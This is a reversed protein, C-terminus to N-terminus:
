WKKRFIDHFRSVGYGYARTFRHGLKEKGPIPKVHIFKMGLMRCGGDTIYNDGVMAVNAPYIVPRHAHKNQLHMDVAAKFGRPDPKPAVRTVVPIGIQRFIEREEANNSFVVAPIKARIERLKEVVAPAFDNTHHSVMTGDVDMILGYICGSIRDVDLDEFRELRLATRTLYPAFLLEAGHFFKEATFGERSEDQLVPLNM